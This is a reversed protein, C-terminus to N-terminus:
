FRGELGLAGLGISPRVEFGEWRSERAHSAEVDKVTKRLLARNYRDTYLVADRDGLFHEKATGDGKFLAVLFWTGFALTGVTGAAAMAIGAGNTVKASRDFGIATGTTDSSSSLSGSSSGTGSSGSAGAKSSGVITCPSQNQTWQTPDYDTTQCYRKLNLFGAVAVGLSVATLGGSTYFSVPNRRRNVDDLEDSGTVRGFRRAFENETLTAGRGDRFTYETGTSVVSVKDKEYLVKVTEPVGTETIGAAAAVGLAGLRESKTRDTVTVVAALFGKVKRRHLVKLKASGGVSVMAVDAGASARSEEGTAYEGEGYILASVYGYGCQKDKCCTDYEATDGRALRKSTELKYVFHTAREADGSFGFTGLLAKAKAGFALEQADEFSSSLPTAKADSLKALCPNARAIEELTRGETPMEPLIRGLLADDETPLPILVYSPGLPSAGASGGGSRSATRPTPPAGCGVVLAAALVARVSRALRERAIM